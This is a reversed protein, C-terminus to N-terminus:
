KVRDTITTEAVPNRLIRRIKASSLDISHAILDLFGVMLGPIDIIVDQSPGGPPAAQVHVDEPASHIVVLDCPGHKGIDRVVEGALQQVNRDAGADEGHLFVSAHVPRVDDAQVIAAIHQVLCAVSEPFLPYPVATQYLPIYPRKWELVSGEIYDKRHISEMGEWILLLGIRFHVTYQLSVAVQDAAEADPAFGAPGVPQHVPDQGALAPESRRELGEVGQFIPQLFFVPEVLIM